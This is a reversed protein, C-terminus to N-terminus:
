NNFFSSKNTPPAFKKALREGINGKNKSNAARKPTVVGGTGASSDQDSDEISEKAFMPWEDLFDKLVDKVASEDPEGNADFCDSFDALRLAAAIGKSSINVDDDAAVVKVTGRMLKENAEQMKTEAKAEPDDETGEPKKKASEKSSRAGKRTGKAFAADIKKQLDTKTLQVTEEDEKDDQNEEDSDGAPDADEPPDENGGGAGGVAAGCLLMAPFCFLMQLIKIIKKM